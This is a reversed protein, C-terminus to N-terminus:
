VRARGTSADWLKHVDVHPTGSAVVLTDEPTPHENLVRLLQGQSMREGDRPALDESLAREWRAREGLARERWAEPTRWGEAGLAELLARLGLPM